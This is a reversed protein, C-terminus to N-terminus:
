FITKKTPYWMSRSRAHSVRFVAPRSSSSSWSSRRLFFRRALKNDRGKWRRHFCYTRWPSCTRGDTPKTPEEVMAWMRTRYATTERPPTYFLFIAIKLWFFWVEKKKRVFSNKYFKGCRRGDFGDVLVEAIIKVLM